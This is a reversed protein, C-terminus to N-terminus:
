ARVAGRNARYWEVTSLIGERLGVRPEWGTSRLLSVDL